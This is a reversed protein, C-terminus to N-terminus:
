CVLDSDNLTGLVGENATRFVSLLPKPLSRPKDMQTLLTPAIAPIGPDSVLFPWPTQPLDVALTASASSAGQGIFASDVLFYDDGDIVGNLDVDGNRYQDLKSIFGSDILFYDDGDVIGNLDVDGNWSFRVLISNADVPLDGFQSFLPTQGDGNDNLAIALGRLDNTKAQSSTLGPGEWPDPQSSRATKIWNSTQDLVALRSTSDAHVILNGQGLDLRGQDGIVLNATALTTDPSSGLNVQGADRITLAALILTDSIVLSASGSITFAFNSGAITLTDGLAYRGDSITLANTGAGAQIELKTTLGASIRFADDAAGDADHTAADLTLRATDSLMMPVLSASGSTGSVRTIGTSPSAIELTDQGNPTILTVSAFRDIRLSNLGWFAITRDGVGLTGSAPVTPSPNYAGISSADGILTLNEAHVELSNDPLVSGTSLDVTVTDHGSGGDIVLNKLAAASISYTPAQDPTTNVFVEIADGVRVLHFTDDGPTGQLSTATVTFDDTPSNALPLNALDRIGSTPGNLKLTYSGELFTLASLNGLTWTLGDSTTLTQASTLLNSGGNRSLVLDALDFGTIPESFTLTISDIPAQRPDPQVAAITVTPPLTDNNARGPSGGRVEAAWNAVDNGYQDAAIRALSSGTGDPATPWPTGSDYKVRDVVVYPVFGNLEPDVPKSLELNEGANDLAGTYPGYIPVNSPIGYAARFADPETPVVLAYGDAPIMAGAPFAFTIGSTFRWTNEPHLPDYLLADSGTINRLEIFESADVSPNYMIENIVVPGVLPYANAQGPTPGSLPVFDSGGTSKLYRGL